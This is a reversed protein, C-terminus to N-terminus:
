IILYKLRHHALALGHADAGSISAPTLRLVVCSDCGQEPNEGVRGRRVESVLSRYSGALCMVTTIIKKKKLKRRDRKLTLLYKENQTLGRLGGRERIECPM